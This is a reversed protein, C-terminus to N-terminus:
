PELPELDEPTPDWWQADEELETKLGALAARKDTNVEAKAQQDTYESMAITANAALKEALVVDAPNGPDFKGDTHLLLLNKIRERTRSIKIPM